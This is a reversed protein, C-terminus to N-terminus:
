EPAPIPPLSLRAAQQHIPRSFRPLVNELLHMRIPALRALWGEPEMHDAAREIAEVLRHTQACARPSGFDISGHRCVPCRGYAVCQGDSRSGTLPPHAGRSCDWGPTCAFTQRDGERRPDFRGRNAVMSSQLLLANALAEDERARGTATVYYDATTEASKHSAAAKVLLINGGSKRHALELVADRIRTITVNAGVGAADAFAQFAHRVPITIGPRKSANIAVAGANYGKLGWYLFVEDGPTLDRLRSTWRDLLALMQKPNIAEATASATAIQRRGARPKWPRAFIREGGVWSRLAFDSRQCSLLVSDNFRFIIAFLIIFPAIDALSPRITRLMGDRGLKHLQKTLQYDATKLQKCTRRGDKFHQALQKLAAQRKAGVAESVNEGDLLNLDRTVAASTERVAAAAAVFLAKLQAESLASEPLAASEMSQSWPSRPFEHSPLLDSAYREDTRILGVLTRVAEYYISRTRRRLVAVGNETRNLWLIFASLTQRDLDRLRYETRSTDKLFSLFGGRLNQYLGTHSRRSKVSRKVSHLAIAHAIPELLNPTESLRGLHLTEFKETGEVSFKLCPGKDTMLISTPAELAGRAMAKLARQRAASTRLQDPVRL